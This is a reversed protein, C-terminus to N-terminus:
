NGGRRKTARRPRGIASKPHQKFQPDLQIIAGKCLAAHASAALTMQRLIRRLRAARSLNGENEVHTIAEAIDRMQEGVTQKRYDYAPTPMRNM